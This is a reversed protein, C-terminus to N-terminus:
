ILRELNNPNIASLETLDTLMLLLPLVLPFLYTLRIDMSVYKLVIHSLWILFQTLLWCLVNWCLNDGRRLVSPNKKAESM